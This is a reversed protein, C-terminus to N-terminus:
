VALWVDNPSPPWNLASLGEPLPWEGHVLATVAFRSCNYRTTCTDGLRLGPELRAVACLGDDWWDYKDDVADTLFTELGIINPVAVERTHLYDSAGAPRTGFGAATMEYLFAGVGDPSGLLLACHSPVDALPQHQRRTWLRTALAAPNTGFYFAIYITSAPM